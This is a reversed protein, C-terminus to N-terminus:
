YIKFFVDNKQTSKEAYALANDVNKLTKLFRNMPHSNMKRGNLLESTTIGLIDAIPNLLSIDPCCLRKGM